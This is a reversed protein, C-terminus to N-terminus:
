PITRIELNLILFEKPPDPIWTMRNHSSGLINM